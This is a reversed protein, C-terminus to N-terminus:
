FVFEIEKFNFRATHGNFDVVLQGESSVDVIKGEVLIGNVNYKSVQGLRYLNKIYLSKLASVGESRLLFYNKEISRWLEYLLNTITYDRHLFQKISCANTLDGFDEQNVNLGIGVISHKWQNGQLSNEILVGGLKRDGVYVDNPWKIRLQDGLLPFLTEFISVCTVINIDFQNSPSLFVPKLLMSFTLNKGPTSVWRNGAQGKGAYQEEAMIVTGENFPASKSVEEKLFNNTSSVRKLTILKQGNFFPPFTNSQM